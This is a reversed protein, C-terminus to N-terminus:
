NLEFIYFRQNEYRYRFYLGKSIFFGQLESILTKTNM